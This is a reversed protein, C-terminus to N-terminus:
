HFTPCGMWEQTFTRLNQDLGTIMQIEQPLMEFDFIESNQKIREESVSKPIVIIDQQVSWRLLIQSTSKEYKQAFSEIMENHLLDPKSSRDLGPAGLSAFATVAVNNEKCFKVLEVQPFFPHLEIQNVAPPIRAYNLCDNLMAVGYNSVGIAKVLGQDYAKELERWVDQVGLGGLRRVGPKGDKIQVPIPLHVLYLDLYELQLESLTKKLAPIVETPHMQTAALKSTIFLDKRTVHGENFVETLTKGIEPENNYVAACDIHRYGIRIAAKIAPPIEGPKSLFTGYGLLPM